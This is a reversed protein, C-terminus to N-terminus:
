IRKGWYEKCEYNSASWEFLEVSRRKGRLMDTGGAKLFQQNDGLAVNM